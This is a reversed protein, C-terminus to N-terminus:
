ARDGEVLRFDAMAVLEELAEVCGALRMEDVNTGLFAGQQQMTLNRWWRSVDGRARKSRWWGPDTGTAMCCPVHLLSWCEALIEDHWIQVPVLAFPNNGVRIARPEDILTGDRQKIQIM